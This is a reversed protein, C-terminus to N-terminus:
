NLSYMVYFYTHTSQKANTGHILTPDGVVQQSFNLLLMKLIHIHSKHPEPSSVPKPAAAALDPVHIYLNGLSKCM